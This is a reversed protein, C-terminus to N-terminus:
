PKMLTFNGMQLLRKLEECADSGNVSSSNGAAAGGSTAAQRFQLIVAIWNIATFVFIGVTTYTIHIFGGIDLCAPAWQHAAYNHFWHFKTGDEKPYQKVLKKYFKYLFQPTASSQSYVNAGICFAVLHILVLLCWFIKDETPQGATEYVAAILFIATCIHFTNFLRFVGAVLETFEVAADYKSSMEEIVDDFPREDNQDAAACRIYENFSDWVAATALYASCALALCLHIFFNPVTQGFIAHGYDETPYVILFLVSFMALAYGVFVILVLYSALLYKQKKSLKQDPTKKELVHNLFKLNEGKDLFQSIAGLKKCRSLCLLLIISILYRYFMMLNRGIM